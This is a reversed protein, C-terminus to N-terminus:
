GQVNNQLQKLFVYELLFELHEAIKLDAKNKLLDVAEV